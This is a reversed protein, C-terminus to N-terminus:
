VHNKLLNRLRLVKLNAQTAPAATARASCAFPLRKEGRADELYRGEGWFVFRRRSGLSSKPWAYVSEKGVKSIVPM